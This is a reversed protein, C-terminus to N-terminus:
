PVKSFYDGVVNIDGDACVLVTPSLHLSQKPWGRYLPLVELTNAAKLKCSEPFASDGTRIVDIQARASRGTHLVINDVVYSTPTASATLVSSGSLAEFGIDAISMSCRGGNNTFVVWAKYSAQANNAVRVPDPTERIQSARCGPASTSAAFAVTTASLSLSAFVGAMSLISIAIVRALLQPRM